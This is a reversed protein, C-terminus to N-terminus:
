VSVNKGTNSSSESIGYKVVIVTVSLVETTFSGFSTSIGNFWSFLRKMGIEEKWGVM